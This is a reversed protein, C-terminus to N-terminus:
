HALTCPNGEEESPPIPLKRSWRGRIGGMLAEWIFGTVSSPGVMLAELIQTIERTSRDSILNNKYQYQYQNNRTLIIDEILKHPGQLSKM